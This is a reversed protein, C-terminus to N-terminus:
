WLSIVAFTSRDTGVEQYVGVRRDFTSRRRTVRASIYIREQPSTVAFTVCIFDSQYCFRVKHESGCEVRIWTPNVWKERLKRSHVRGRCLTTDQAAAGSPFLMVLFSSSVMMM